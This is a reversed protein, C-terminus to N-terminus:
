TGVSVRSWSRRSVYIFMYSLDVLADECSRGWLECVRMRVASACDATGM